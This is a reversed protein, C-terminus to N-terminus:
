AHAQRPGLHSAGGGASLRRRIAPMLGVGAGYMLHEILFAAQMTDVQERMMPNVIPLAIFTMLAWVILGFLMGLGISSGIGAHRKAAIAFVMGWGMSVMMHIILGVVLADVGAKMADRGYFTGAIMRLPASAGMRSAAAYIMAFM